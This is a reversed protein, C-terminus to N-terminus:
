IGWIAPYPPDTINWRSGDWIGGRVEDVKECGLTCRIDRGGAGSITIAKSNIWVDGTLGSNRERLSIRDSVQRRMIEAVHGDDVNRIEITVAPREVMYRTVWADCVARAVATDIEQWGAVELVRPISAGPIPSFRDISGSADVVNAVVTEGVTALSQARLQIGTTPSATPGAVTPTGSTATVTLFAVLGSTASLSMSVTGGSVTYDTGVVPLLAGQFPDTPHIILTTGSAAPQLAAGYSWIVTPSGALARRRTSYRAANYIQRFGPDYSLATFYRVDIEGDYAEPEDYPRADDYYASDGSGRRDFFTAQSEVCRPTTVRYNRNEFHFVAAAPDSESPLVYLAGPGESALLELLAAWPERDDCWWYLLTTDSVSVARQDAPWGVADLIATVCQDVRPATMLGVSVTTGLLLTEIGLTRLTVTQQGVVTDQSIDDIATRAVPLTGVGDYYAPADYPLPEDYAGAAGATIEIHVPRGPIVRQYVPSGAHEQSYTGTDNRLVFDAAAVKPPSLQRAGDRGLDISVGPDALVDATVDDFPGTFLGDGDWSVRVTTCGHTAVAM